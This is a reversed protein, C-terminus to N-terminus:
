RGRSYLGVLLSTGVIHGEMAKQIDSKNATQPVSLTIDLASLTFFYRHTGSPPCMGMYEPKGAGNVAQLAGTPVSNEVIETTQPPINYVIWHVFDGSPADPDNVIIILSKANKPVNSIALPPNVSQADCSYKVPIKENYLFVSSTLRMKSFVVTQDTAVPKKGGILKYFSQVDNAYTIIGIIVIFVIFILFTRM